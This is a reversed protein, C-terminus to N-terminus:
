GDKVEKEHEKKHCPRCLVICGELERLLQPITYGGHVFRSINGKKKGTHHFTPQKKSGCKVCGQARLRGVIGKKERVKQRHNAGLAM